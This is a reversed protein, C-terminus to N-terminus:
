ASARHPLPARRRVDRGRRRRGADPVLQLLSTGLRWGHEEAEAGFGDALLRGLEDVDATAWVVAIDDVGEHGAPM